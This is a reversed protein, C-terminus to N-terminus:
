MTALVGFVREPNESIRDREFAEQAKILADERSLGKREMLDERM